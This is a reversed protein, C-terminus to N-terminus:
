LQDTFSLQWEVLLQCFKHTGNISFSILKKSNTLDLTLKLKHLTKRNDTLITRILQKLMTKMM